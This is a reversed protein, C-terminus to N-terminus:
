RSAASNAPSSWRSALESELRAITRSLSPQAVHLEDAARSLHELRAVVLFQRLMNLDM